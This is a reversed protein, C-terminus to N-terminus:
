LVYHHERYAKHFGPLIPLYVEEESGLIASSFLPIPMEVDHLIFSLMM